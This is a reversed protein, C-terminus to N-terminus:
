YPLRDGDLVDRRGPAGHVEDVGASVHDHRLRDGRRHGHGPREKSSRGSAGRELLEDVGGREPDQLRLVGGAQEGALDPSGPRNAIRAPFSYFVTPIAGATGAVNPERASHPLDCILVRPNVPTTASTADNATIM